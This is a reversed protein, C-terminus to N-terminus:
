PQLGTQPDERQYFATIKGRDTETDTHKAKISFATIPTPRMQMSHETGNIM